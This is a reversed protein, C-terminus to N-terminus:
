VLGASQWKRFITKAERDLDRVADAPTAKEQAVQAFMQPILYRNFIEDIM